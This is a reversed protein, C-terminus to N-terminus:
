HCGGFGPRQLHFHRRHLADYNPGLTLGFIRCAGAEVQHLYRGAPTNANWSQGVEITTGDVLRVGTVDIAQARAHRSLPAHARRDVTRCAYSGVHDLRTVAQGFGARAEPQLIHRDFVALAVALPCTVLTPRSLRLDGMGRLRVADRWGCGHGADHDPVPDFAAGFRKLLAHCQAPRAALRALKLRTFPGPLERVQLATWPVYRPPVRLGRQWAWAVLVILLIFLLWARM